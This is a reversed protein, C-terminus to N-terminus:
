RSTNALMCLQLVHGTQAHEHIQRALSTAYAALAEKFIAIVELLQYASAFNKSDKLVTRITQIMSTSNELELM